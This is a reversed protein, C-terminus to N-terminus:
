YNSTATSRSAQQKTCPTLVLRNSGSRYVGSGRRSLACSTKPLCQSTFSPSSSGGAAAGAAAAFFLLMNGLELAAPRVTDPWLLLAPVADSFRVSSCVCCFANDAAAAADRRAVLSALPGSAARPLLAVVLPESLPLVLMPPLLLARFLLLVAPRRGNLNMLVKLHSCRLPQFM